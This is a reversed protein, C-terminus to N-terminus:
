RNAGQATGTLKEGDRQFVFCHITRDGDDWSEGSPRIHGIELDSLEYQRGVFAEFGGYCLEDAFSILADDGPYLDGSAGPHEVIAYVENDHPLNCDVGFVGEVVAGEDDQVDRYDFCQGPELDGVDVQEAPPETTSPPATTPPATTSTDADEGGLDGCAAGLVLVCVALALARLNVPPRM